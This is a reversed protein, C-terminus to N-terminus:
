LFYINSAQKVWFVIIKHQEMPQSGLIKLGSSWEGRVFKTLSQDKNNKREALKIEEEGLVCGYMYSNPRPTVDALLKAFYSLQSSHM